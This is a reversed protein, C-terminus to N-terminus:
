KDKDKRSQLELSYVRSRKISLKSTVHDIIKRGRMKNLRANNIEELITKDSLIEKKSDDASIIITFEGRPKSFKRQAEFSTGIFTEEHIKTLERCIFILRDGMIEEINKFTELIRHPSEFIIILGTISNIKKIFNIRENEKRPLFGFFTFKSNPWPCISLAATIASPGPIPTVKYGCEM